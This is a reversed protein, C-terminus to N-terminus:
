AALTRPAEQVARLALDAAQWQVRATALNKAKVHGFGKIQEPIRALALAQALNSKSLLALIDEVSRKYDEVLAREQRREETYGFVDLTTGRLGKLRALVKFAVGMWPGFRQKTLEGQANRKSWVPPALHFALKYDGEFMGAIKQHFAADTHLRAVEYEDKYAMLKFLNRAVAEALASTPSVGSEAVRVREVMDAYRQAYASDQYDTLFAVRLAVLDALSQRRAPLSIVQATSLLRQVSAADHAARRGWM